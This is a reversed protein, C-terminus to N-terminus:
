VGAGSGVAVDSGGVGSGVAVGSGGVGSGVGVGSGGVGSGGVGSGTTGVFVGSGVAMGAGTTTAGLQGSPRETIEEGPTLWTTLPTIGM